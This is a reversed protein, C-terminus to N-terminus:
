DASFWKRYLDDSCYGAAAYFFKILLGNIMDVQDDPLHNILVTAEADGERWDVDLDMIDKFMEQGEATLTVSDDGCYAIGLQDDYDSYVDVDLCNENCVFCFSSLKM